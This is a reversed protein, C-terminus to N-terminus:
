RDLVAGGAGGDKVEGMTTSCGGRGDTSAFPIPSRPFPPGSGDLVVVVILSRGLVLAGVM